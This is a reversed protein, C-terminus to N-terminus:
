ECADPWGCFDCKDGYLDASCEPCGDPVPKGYSQGLLRWLLESGVCDSEFLLEGDRYVRAYATHRNRVIKWERGDRDKDFVIHGDGDYDCDYFRPINM